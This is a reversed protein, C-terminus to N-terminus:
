RQLLQKCYQYLQEWNNEVVMTKWQEVLKKYENLYM